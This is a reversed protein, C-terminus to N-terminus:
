DESLRKRICQVTYSVARPTIGLLESIERRPYGELLLVAVDFEKETLSDELMSYILLMDIDDSEAGHSFAFKRPDFYEDTPFRRVLSIYHNVLSRGIYRDLGRQDCSLKGQEFRRLLEIIKLRGEQLLDAKKLYTFYYFKRSM